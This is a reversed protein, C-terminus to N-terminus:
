KSFEKRVSLTRHRDVWYAWAMFLIGGALGVIAIASVSPPPPGVISSVYSVALVAVLGVFAWRGVADRPRTTGVYLALGVVLMLSEVVITASASHWLGLGVKPGADSLLPLDPRHTVFDLVWHSAVCLAAVWSGRPSKRFAFYVGGFVASWVLAAALGHSFPYSLFDLTLFPTEGRGIRVREIRLLLFVPWLVDLFLAALLLTGLSVTPAAKKAGFGVAFHGIFM